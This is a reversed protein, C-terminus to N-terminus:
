TWDRTLTAVQERVRADPVTTIAGDKVVQRGDVFVDRIARPSQAYVVNKRLQQIPLLSLDGADLAVFDARRGKEIAGIPLGLAKSANITGMDFVQEATIVRADLNQVKQLLACMRMEGFISAQNNSCGGDVGLTVPIGRKTWKPIPTVGDGLFMNSSPNYSLCAGREKMLDLEGDDLWVGHVALAQADLVGLTELWRMPTKGHKELTEKVEYQGEAVHIHVPVGHQKAIAAGTRIMEASAGHPSHPAPHVQVMRDHRYKKVLAEVNARAVPVTEQYKKPAGDWDYLCRAMVVRLGLDRAAQIVAEANENAQDNLYFFDVATTTGHRLLEAFALLAGVYIGKADLKLSYKYIGNARWDFFELDDGFGRVLYQFTHTHTSVTGPLLAKGALDVVKAAAHKRRMEAAPGVEVIDGADELVAHGAKIAVANNERVFVHDAIFLQSM